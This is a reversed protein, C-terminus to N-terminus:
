KPTARGHRGATKHLAAHAPREAAISAHAHSINGGVSPSDAVREITDSKTSLRVTQMEVMVPKSPLGDPEPERIESAIAAAQSNVNDAPGEVLTHDGAQASFMRIAAEAAKYGAELPGYGPANGGENWDWAYETAPGVYDRIATDLEWMRKLAANRLDAPVLRHMFPRIDTQATIDDLSPLSALDFPSEDAAEEEGTKAAGDPVESPRAEARAIEAKRRAWRSLFNEDSATM